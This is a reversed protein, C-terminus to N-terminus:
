AVHVILSHVLFTMFYTYILIGKGKMILIVLAIEKHTIDSSLTVSSIGTIGRIDSM